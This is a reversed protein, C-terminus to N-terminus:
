SELIEPHTKFYNVIMHLIISHMDEIQEYSTLDTVYSADAYDMIKGGSFGTLTIIKANQTKAYECAHVLDPSNGSASIQVIVDGARLLNKLQQSFIEEFAFDNGLATISAVNTSLSTMKFRKLGETLIANKSFDATFHNGTSASGGNGMVFVNKDEKYAYLLIEVIKMFDDTEISQIADHIGRGYHQIYEQNSNQEM